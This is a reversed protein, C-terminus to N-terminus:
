ISSYVKLDKWYVNKIKLKLYSLIGGNSYPFIHKFLGEYEVGNEIFTASGFDVQAEGPPHEM